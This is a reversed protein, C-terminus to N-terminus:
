STLKKFTIQFAELGGIKTSQFMNGTLVTGEVSNM